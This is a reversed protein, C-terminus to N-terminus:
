LEECGHHHLHLQHRHCAGQELVGIGVTAEHSAPLCCGGLAVLGDSVELAVPLSRSVIYDGLVGDSIFEAELALTSPLALSSTAAAVTVEGVAVVDNGLEVLVEGITSHGVSSLGLGRGARSNGLDISREPFRQFWSELDLLESQFRFPWILTGASSGCEKV